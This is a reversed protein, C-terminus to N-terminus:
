DVVPRRIPQGHPADLILEGDRAVFGGNVLVAQVGVTPQHTYSSYFGMEGVDLLRPSSNVSEAVPCHVGFGSVPLWSATRPM